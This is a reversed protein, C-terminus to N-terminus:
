TVNRAAKELCARLHVATTQADARIYSHHTGPVRIQEIGGRALEVWGQTHNLQYWTENTLMTVQGPYPKPKYRLLSRPYGERVRRVHQVLQQKGESEPIPNLHLVDAIVPVSRRAKQLFYTPRERWKMQGLKKWHLALLDTVQERWRNRFTDVCYRLYRAITPRPTDLLLLLAVKQGQAMLQRGMEYAVIGGLCEGAICYPGEPQLLRMERIYDTAMQEVRTHPERQGDWGRAQLGYFPFDDGVFRALRAYVLFEDEGGGGGPVLFLPKQTGSRQIPVLYTWAKEPEPGGTASAKRSEEIRAALQAVTPSDFLTRVPLEVGFRQHLRSILQIVLLSHGGLDFFNDHIGVRPIGLLESWIRAVQEEVSSRPEIVAAGPDPRDIEIEPLAKRDVKGNPTLPLSDLEVFTAPIMYAPLKERLFQRLDEPTIRKSKRPVIFAVLRKDGDDRRRVVVAVQGVSTHQSLVAEIEELEIRFGRLKVQQDGRGVFEVNGDFRYRALDGSRYLRATPDSGFEDDVFRESTLEPRNLYGYALGDGGIYLEGIVGIPVAQRHRDLIYIRTNSIPRGIPVTSAAEEVREIRYWTTFTTNETPGYVHLLNQPPDHKLVKRVCNPDCTEGGFLLYRLSQFASPCENAMQNFLATTLFLTSIQRERIERMFERPSLVVAQPLLILSAGNLLAGWVEFTAADFSANSAQAIRDAPTLAVYNTNRILRVVARHPVAVGKPQGTSGSTYIVYALNSATTSNVPNERSEAAMQWDEDVRLVPVQCQPLNPRLHEQILLVHVKADELMFALRERPYAPELPVYAGGAKLIGLIGVIMGISREVCLGVLVDPGVGFKRLNHALQNARENLQRYTLRREEFSVAIADPTNQAQAEFLEQISAERPYGTQTNNWEFLLQDRENKTLLPLESLRRNPDAAIGELMTQFHGAMRAITAEEFLDTSYIFLGNLGDPSEVVHVELDFRVRPNEVDIRSLALGSLTPDSRPANQLAFAVQFLPNRSPDRQPRLEEVLKEFPIDQNAFAELAVKRVRALLERFTPDGSLDTRLVLMNVFFGILGELETRTRGAIPSGVVIDEQATYRSLLSQFAAMLTMFLTAGENRSLSQLAEMLEKRLRFAHRAGRFRQAPLRVHDTPIELTPLGSLQGRWYKLQSGLREGQLSRHQWVAYDAYQIPLDPLPSPRDNSFAEYLVSLEQHLVSMSWGDSAIHHMTLLLAHKRTEMKVLTARLLPGRALDFPQSAEEGALRQLESERAEPPLSTLDLPRVPFPNPPHVLQMPVNGDSSFSTRLVEHRRIIETVSQELANVNIQGEMLIAMSVNYAASGPEWQNLFWLRQQGFSLPALGANARRAIPVVQSASVKDRLKRELLARKSPSLSALRRSLENTKRLDEM